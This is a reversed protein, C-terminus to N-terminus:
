KQDIGKLWDLAAIDDSFVQVVIGKSHFSEVYRILDLRNIMSDPVVIAWYKWGLNMIEPLWVNNAWANDDDSLVKTHLRNDSLWKRSRHERLVETGKLLVERFSNSELQEKFVHHVINDGKHFYLDYYENSVVVQPAIKTESM